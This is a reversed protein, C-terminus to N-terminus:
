RTEKRLLISTESLGSPLPLPAERADPRAALTRAADLVRAVEFPREATVLIFREFAPADDLRFSEPLLVERGSTLAGADPGALPWHRTVTGRGDISVIVGYGRGSVYGLQLQDGPHGPAGAPVVEAGSRTRRHVVLHPVARGKVRTGEDNSATSREDTGTTVLLSLATAGAATLAPIFLWWRRPRPSARARRAVEAAVSSPPLRALTEREDHALSALPDAGGSDGAARELVDRRDEADLEGAAALEVLYEPVHHPDSPM